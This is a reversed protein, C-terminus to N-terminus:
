RARRVATGTARKRRCARAQEADLMRSIARLGSARWDRSKKWHEPSM